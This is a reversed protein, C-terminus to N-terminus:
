VMPFANSRNRFVFQFFVTLISLARPGKFFLKLVNNGIGEPGPAKGAKCQELAKEVEALSFPLCLEHSSNDSASQPVSVFIPSCRDMYVQEFHDKLVDVSIFNPTQLNNSDLVKNTLRWIAAGAKTAILRVVLNTFVDKSKSKMNEIFTFYASKAEKLNSIVHPADNVRLKQLSSSLKRTEEQIASIDSNSLFRKWLPENALRSPASNRKHLCNTLAIMLSDYALQPNDSNVFGNVISNEFATADSPNFM